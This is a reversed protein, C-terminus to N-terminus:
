TFVKKDEKEREKEGDKQRVTNIVKTAIEKM